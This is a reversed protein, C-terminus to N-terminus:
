PEDLKGPLHVLLTSLMSSMDIKRMVNFSPKHLLKEVQVPNLSFPYQVGAKRTPDRDLAKIFNSDAGGCCVFIPATSVVCLLEGVMSVIGKVLPVDRCCHTLAMMVLNKGEWCCLCLRQRVASSKFELFSCKNQWGRRCHAEDAGYVFTSSDGSFFVTLIIVHSGM